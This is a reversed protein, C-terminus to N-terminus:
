PSVKQKSGSGSSKSSSSNDGKAPKSPAAPKATKAAKAKSRKEDAKSKMLELWGDSNRPPKRTAEQKLERDLEELSLAEFFAEAEAVSPAVSLMKTGVACAVGDPLLRRKKVAQAKEAAAKEADIDKLVQTKAMSRGFKEEGKLMMKLRWGFGRDERVTHGFGDDGAHDNRVRAMEGTSNWKERLGFGGKASKVGAKIKQFVSKPDGETNMDVLMADSIKILVIDDGGRQKAVAKADDPTIKDGAVESKAPAIAAKDIRKVLAPTVPKGDVYYNCVYDMANEDGNVASVIIADVAMKPHMRLEDQAGGELHLVASIEEATQAQWTIVEDAIFHGAKHILDIVTGGAQLAKPVGFGGLTGLEGIATTLDFINKGLAWVNNELTKTHAQSMKLLPWVLVNAENQETLVRADWLASNTEHQRRGAMAVDLIGRATSMVASAVGLGPTFGKVTQSLSPQISKALTAAQSAGNVVGDVAGLGAKTAKVAEWPDGSKFAAKISRAMAITETVTAALQTLLNGSATVGDTVQEFMNRPTDFDDRDPTEPAKKGKFFAKIKAFTGPADAVKTSGTEAVGGVGGVAGAITETLGAGALDDTDNKHDEAQKGAGLQTQLRDMDQREREKAEGRLDVRKEAAAWAAKDLASNAEPLERPTKHKRAVAQTACYDEGLSRVKYRADDDDLVMGQREAKRQQRRAQIVMHEYAGEVTKSLMQGRKMTEALNEGREQQANGGARTQRVQMVLREAATERPPRHARLEEDDISLWVKDYAEKAIDEDSKDDGAKSYKTKLEAFEEREAKLGLNVKETLKQVATWQDQQDGWEKKLRADREAETENEPGVAVPADGYVDKKTKERQEVGRAREGQHHDLENGEVEKSNAVAKAEGKQEKSGFLKAKVSKIKDFIGRRIVMRRVGAGGETVVHALEHALVHEGERTGPAFQGAGFFVDSGTTFASAQMASSLRAAQPGDHVRVHGLSTGFAGEMRRRVPAPLARGGGRAAEIASSAEVDLDGGELGVAGAPTPAVSRRLHGCGPSHRHPESADLDAVVRDALSDALREMPDDARGVTLVSAPRAPASTTRRSDAAPAHAHGRAAHVHEPQDSM